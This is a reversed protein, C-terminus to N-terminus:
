ATPEKDGVIISAVGGMLPIIKTKTFGSQKMFQTIVSPAIFAGISKSLYAYANKDSAVWKGLVPVVGKLYVRHGFRMFPNSPRTLELIALRGGPKLVRFAEQVCKLPDRVNRIGYAITIADVLDNQLPISQADACIFDNIQHDLDNKSAKIKALDLMDQCFDLLIAKSNNLHKLFTIAIDGTGACLDLLLQPDSKSATLVLQKNWWKYLGLSLYGNAKDYCPAVSSFM